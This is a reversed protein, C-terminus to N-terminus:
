RPSTWFCQNKRPKPSWSPARPPVIPMKLDNWCLHGLCPELHSLMPWCLGLMPWCLALMTGLNSPRRGATLRLGKFLPAVGGATSGMYLSPIAIKDCRRGAAPIAGPTCSTTGFTAKQLLWPVLELIIARAELVSGRAVSFCLPLSPRIAGAAQLQDHRIDTESAFLFLSQGPKWLQGGRWLSVGHCHLVSPAQPWCSTTGFAVKQLWLFSAGFHNGMFGRWASVGHCHLVSPEHGVESEPVM